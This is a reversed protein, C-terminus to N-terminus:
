TKITIPYLWHNKCTLVINLRLQSKERGYIHLMCPRIWSNQFETNLYLWCHGFGGGVRMLMEILSSILWHLPLTYHLGHLLVVVGVCYLLLLVTFVIFLLVFHVICYVCQYSERDHLSLCLLCCNTVCRVYEIM